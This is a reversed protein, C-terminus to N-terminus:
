GKGHFVMEPKEESLQFSINDGKYNLESRVYTEVGGVEEIQIVPVGHVHVQPDGTRIVILFM